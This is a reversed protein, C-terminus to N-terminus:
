RRAEFEPLFVKSILQFNLVTAPSECGDRWLQRERTGGGRRGGTAQASTNPGRPVMLQDLESGGATAPVHLRFFDAPQFLM